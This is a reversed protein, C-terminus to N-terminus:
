EKVTMIQGCFVNFAKWKEERGVIAAVIALLFLDNGVAAQLVRRQMAWAPCFELTHQASDREEECHHCQTTAKKGIRCLYEGFCGHGTLVQTAHYTLEYGRSDLWEALCPRVADVTRKGTIAPNALYEGWRKIFVTREQLRIASRVRDTM